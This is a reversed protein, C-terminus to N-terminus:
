LHRVFTPDDVTVDLRSVDEDVQRVVTVQAVEAERLLKALAAARRDGSSEDAREVGERRLLNPLLGDVSAGVPVCMCTDEVLAERPLGGKPSVGLRLREPAMHLLRHRRDGTMGLQVVDELSAQGLIRVIAEIRARLEDLGSTRCEAETGRTRNH